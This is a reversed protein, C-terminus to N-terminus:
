RTENMLVWVRKQMSYWQYQSLWTKLVNWAVGNRKRKGDGAKMQTRKHRLAFAAFLEETILMCFGVVMQQKM